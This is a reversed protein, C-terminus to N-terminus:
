LPKIAEHNASPQRATRIMTRTEILVHASDQLLLLVNTAIEHDKTGPMLSAVRRSQEDIRRQVDSHELCSVRRASFVSAHDKSM